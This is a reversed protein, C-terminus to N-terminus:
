QNVIDAILLSVNIHRQLDFRDGMGPPSGTEPESLFLSGIRIGLLRMGEPTKIFLAGGSAGGMSHCDDWVLDSTGQLLVSQEASGFNCSLHAKLQGSVVDFGVLFAKGSRPQSAVQEKSLAWHRWNKWPKIAVMSWDNEYQLPLPQDTEAVNGVGLTKVLEGRNWQKAGSRYECDDLEFSDLVHGATLVVPGDGLDLLVGSGETKGDCVVKGVANFLVPWSDSDFRQVRQDEIGNDPDGDGFVSAIATASFTAFLLLFLRSTM